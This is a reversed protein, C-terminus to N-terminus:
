GQQNNQTQDRYLRVAKIHACDSLRINKCSCAFLGKEEQVSVTYVGTNAEVGYQSLQGNTVLPFVKGDNFYKKAKDMNIM